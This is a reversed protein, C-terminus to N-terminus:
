FFFSTISCRMQKHPHLDVKPLVVDRQDRQDKRRAEPSVVTRVIERRDADPGGGAFDAM